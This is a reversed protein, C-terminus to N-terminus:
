DRVETRRGTEFARLAGAWFICREDGFAYRISFKYEIMPRLPRIM